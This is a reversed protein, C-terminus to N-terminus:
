GAIVVNFVGLVSGLGNEQASEESFDLLNGISVAVVDWTNTAGDDYLTAIDITGAKTITPIAPLPEEDMPKEMTEEMMTEEETVPGVPTPMKQQEMWAAKGGPIESCLQLGCVDTSSGYKATGVGKGKLADADIVYNTTIAVTLLPLIAFLGVYKLTKNM